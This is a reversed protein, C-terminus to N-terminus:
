GVQIVTIDAGNIMKSISTIMWYGSMASGFIKINADWNAFDIIDGIELANYKPTVARFSILNKRDKFIELYTNNIATATTEDIVDLDIEMELSQNNGNVSTGQSTANSANVSEEFQDRGYNQSYHSTIKNRVSNLKTKYINNLQIDYFDITKDSSSYDDSRRLTKIKVKGDGSIFVWSFCQRTLRNILDRSDIFKYQSFAFKVDGVADNLIDGLHGNTSNGSQDFLAYDINSSTLALETRLIDEIIYIPNELLNGENYGNNRSDADIWSMYERGAGSFYVYDIEAPTRLTKTRTAIVTEEVNDSQEFQTSVSYGVIKEHEEQITKSFIQSPRFELMLFMDQLRYSMSNDGNSTGITNRMTITTSDISASSLEDDSYKSTLNAIHIGDTTIAPSFSTGGVLSVSVGSADQSSFTSTKTVLFIDNNDYLEGLKPVTPVNFTLNRTATGGEADELLTGTNFTAYSATNDDVAFAISTYDTSSTFSNELPLRYYYNTGKVKIINHSTSSPNTTVSVNSDVASLFEGSKNIYVNTDRLTHLKVSSGQDTDPLAELQGSANCRNIIIAPFRGDAFFQKYYNDSTTRDFSGYPIPIPKGINKKPASSYTTTDVVSKPIKKHYLSNKDLLLLELSDVSYKIDGSIIGTGIMRTSTDFTSTQNTNLFLEWKRNSFNNSAFLDSFRTNNISEKTNILRISISSTSTQFNFFDLSQTYNGWSSVIGYYVDSGDNRHIDSVGIFNSEDNYYLKLVWFATTNSIQLSNNLDSDFSLM